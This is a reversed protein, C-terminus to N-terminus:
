IDDCTSGRGISTTSMHLAKSNLAAIISVLSPPSRILVELLRYLPLCQPRAFPM